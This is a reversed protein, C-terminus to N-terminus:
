FDELEYLNLDKPLKVAPEAYPDMNFLQPAISGLNITPYSPKAGTVILTVRTKGQLESDVTAGCIVQGKNLMKTVMEELHHADEFTMHNDGAIHIIADASKAYDITLLPNQLANCAAELASSPAKSEGIGVTAIGGKRMIAQVETFDLSILSPGIIPEILSKVLNALSNAVLEANEDHSPHPTFEILNDHNIVLVTDCNRKLNTLTELMPHTHNLQTTFTKDVIAAAVIGKRKITESVFEAAEAELPDQLSSVLFAIKVPELAESIKNLITKKAAQSRDPSGESVTQNISDEGESAEQRDDFEAPELSNKDIIVTCVGELEMKTLQLVAQTGTDGIGIVGIKNPRHNQVSDVLKPSSQWSSQLAKDTAREGAM